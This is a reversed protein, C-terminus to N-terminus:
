KVAGLKKVKLEVAVRTGTPLEAVSSLLKSFGACDIVSANPENIYLLFPPKPKKQEQDADYLIETKVETPKDDNAYRFEIKSGNGLEIKKSANVDTNEIGCIKNAVKEGVDPPCKYGVVKANTQLDNTYELAFGDEMLEKFAKKKHKTYATPDGPVVCFGKFLEARPPVPQGANKIMFDKIAMIVVRNEKSMKPM